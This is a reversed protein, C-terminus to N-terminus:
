QKERLIKLMERKANELSQSWMDNMREVLRSKGTKENIKRLATMNEKNADLFPVVRDAYHGLAINNLMETDNIDLKYEKNGQKLRKVMSPIPLADQELLVGWKQPEREKYNVWSFMESETIQRAKSYMSTLKQTKDELTADKFEESNVYNEAFEARIEGVRIQYNQLEEPSMRSDDWGVKTAPSPLTPFIMKAEDPNTKKYEEYMEYMKTGFSYKQYKKNKSVGLLNYTWTNGDPILKVPEGWISVKTPLDKGMFMRDKFTNVMQARLQGEEKSVDRVERLYNEDAFTKSISSFTSPYVATSMATATNVLWRDREKEGKLAAQLATNVGTMISQELSSTVVSGFVTAWREPANEKEIEEPTKDKYAAGYAMMIMSMTGYGKLTVTNDGDKWTPDGGRIFRHFADMNLRYGEKSAYEAQKLKDEDSGAPTMIGNKLLTIAVSSVITGVVAKGFFDLAERRKGKYMAEMSRAFSYSPVAYEFAEIALNVPTRVYPLTTAKGLKFLAKGIASASKLANVDSKATKKFTQNAYEIIKSVFNDNTYVALDGAKQAQELSANDPNNLFKERQLGKYGKISAIESLRAQEAARRFPKDGLNLLRFMGEGMYGSPLSELIDGVLKDWKRKEAGTLADRIRLAAKIPELGRQIEKKKYDDELQGTKLQRVGEKLGQWAGERYGRFSALASVTRETSPLKQAWRYMDPHKVPDITTRAINGLIGVQSLMADTVNMVGYRILRAPAMFVNGYVNRIISTPVLLNGQILTSVKDLLEPEESLLTKIYQNAKQANFSAKDAEKKAENLKKRLDTFEKSNPEITELKDFLDIVEKIKKQAYGLTQASATLKAETKDSVYDMGLAKALLNKFQPDNVVGKEQLEQMYDKMFGQLQKKTAFGAMKELLKNVMEEQTPPTKVKPEKRKSPKDTIPVEKKLGGLQKKMHNEYDAKNWDPTGVNGKGYEDKYWKDLYEAGKQIASAVDVGLLVAKKVALVSGNWAAVPIGLLADYFQQQKPDILLGNFFDDIKKKSEQGFNKTGIKDIEQAVEEEIKARGEPSGFVDNLLKKAATLEETKSEFFGKNRREIHSRVIASVMEPSQGFVNGWEKQAEVFQGGKTGQEMGFMYLDVAKQRLRDRQAPDTANNKQNTLEKALYVNLYTRTDDPIDNKTNYVMAEVKDLGGEEKSFLSIIEEAEEARVKRGRPEYNIGEKAIGDKIDQDLKQSNLARVGLTREVGGEQPTTKDVKPPEEVIPPVDTGKEEIPASIAEKSGEQLNEVKTDSVSLLRDFIRKVEPSLKQELPSGKLKKYIDTLWVKFKEFIPQLEKTPSVGDRLYREGARAFKESFLTTGKKAHSWKELSTIEAGSLDKEFIHTIEHVMTSFNPNSLAHIIVKGDALTEVAGKPKGKGKQFLPLGKEVEAKLVPTIGISHQQGKDRMLVSFLQQKILNAETLDGTTRIRFPEGKEFVYVWKDGNSEEEILRQAENKDITIANDIIKNRNIDGFMEITKPEQKFLSKAINGVIGLKSEQPSGYFGVMGKGGVKLDVGGLIKDGNDNPKQESLKQAAEKGIYDALQPERVNGAIVTYNDEGKKVVSLSGDLSLMVSEVQKSLDYRENQQEGTTWAIKDVGQKIAEKLAVKMGLKTWANTDTVFPATPYGKPKPQSKEWGKEIYDWAEKESEFKKTALVNGTDTDIITWGIGEYYRVDASVKSKDFTEKQAFGEKKGKQGWDSQVEEIFLVKKGESDVRTNMRLHVAINPEDFHSSKFTKDWDVQAESSLKEYQSRALEESGFNLKVGTKKNEVYWNGKPNEILEFPQKSRSQPLTVLVEKYNEKEGPLQYQSFKTESESARDPDEIEEYWQERALGRYYDMGAVISPDEERGENYLETARDEVWQKRESDVEGRQVEVVEIRNDKMFQNIEAKTLSQDPKLTNLWDLVGTFTAEDGKGIIEKWKNVSAKEQKFESLRKEIPSYFGNTTEVDPMGMVQRGDPLQYLKPTNKDQFEGQKVDAIRDYWDEPKRGAEESAWSKARAEMLAIAGDIQESPINKGSFAERFKQEINAKHELETFVKNEQVPKETSEIPLNEQSQASKVKVASPEFVFTAPQGLETSTIGVYGDKKLQEIITPDNAIETIQKDQEWGYKSEANADYVNGQVTTELVEAKEGLNKTFIDAAEKDNPYLFVGETKIGASQSREDIRGIFGNTKIEEGKNTAHFYTVGEGTPAEEQVKPPVEETQTEEVKPATEQPAQEKKDRNLISEKERAVAENQEAFTRNKDVPISFTADGKDTKVNYQDFAPENKDDNQQGIFEVDNLDAISEQTETKGNRKNILNSLAKEQRRIKEKIDKSRMEGTVSTDGEYRTLEGKLRGIENEVISISPSKMRDNVIENIRNVFDQKEKPSMGSETDDTIIKIYKSPDQIINDQLTKIDVLADIANATAEMATRKKIDTEKSAAQRIDFSKKRGVEPSYPLKQALDLAGKSATLLNGWARTGAFKAVEPIGLGIGMGMSVEVQKWDIKGTTVLQNVADYGGFGISNTAVSSAVGLGGIGTTEGVAKGVAGAGYGLATYVAGELLGVGAGKLGEKTYEFSPTTEGEPMSEAYRNVAGAGTLTTILKPIKLAKGAYKLKLEPTIAM